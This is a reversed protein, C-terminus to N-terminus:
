LPSTSTANVKGTNKESLHDTVGVKKEISMNAFILLFDIYSTIFKGMKVLWAVDFGM